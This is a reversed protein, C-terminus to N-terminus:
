RGMWKVRCQGCNSTATQDQFQTYTIAACQDTLRWGCAAYSASPAVKLHILPM